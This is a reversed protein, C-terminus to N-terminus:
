LFLPSSSVTSDLLCILIMPLFVAASPIQSVEGEPSNLRLGARAMKVQLGLSMLILFPMRWVPLQPKRM